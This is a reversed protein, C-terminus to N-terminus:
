DVVEDGIRLHVLMINVHKLSVIHFHNNGLVSFKCSKYKRISENIKSFSLLCFTLDIVKKYLIM